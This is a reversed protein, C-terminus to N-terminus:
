AYIIRGTNNSKTRWFIFEHELKKLELEFAEIESSFAILSPGLSSMAIAKAGAGLLKKELSLIDNQYNLRELSKWKTQQLHEIANCFMEFDNELVAGTVGYLSFYLIEYVENNSLPTSKKFFSLEKLQSLPKTNRPICVIFDWDPFKTLILPKSIEISSSSNSPLFINDINKVGIDMVFGGNFYTQIGIGSTRGRNSLNTIELPSYDVKNIKYISEICALTINTGTGFGSHIPCDLFFTFSYHTLIDKIACLKILNTILSHNNYEIKLSNSFLTVNMEKSEVVNFKITPSDFSFGIGGYKRYGLHNFGILSLHARPFLMGEAIIKNQEM